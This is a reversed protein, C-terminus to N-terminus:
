KQFSYEQSGNNPFEHSNSKSLQSAFRNMVHEISHLSAMAGSRIPKNENSIFTTSKRQFQSLNPLLQSNNTESKRRTFIDLTNQTEHASKM